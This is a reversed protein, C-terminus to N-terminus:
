CFEGSRQLPKAHLRSITTEEVGRRSPLTAENQVLDPMEQENQRSNADKPACLAVFNMVKLFSIENLKLYKEAKVDTTDFLEKAKM